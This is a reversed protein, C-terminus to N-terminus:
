DFRKTITLVNQGDKYTYKMQDMFKKSLYIGLGGPKRKGTPLKLNPDKKALPDFPMGRDSMQILAEEPNKTIKLRIAATKPMKELDAESYGEYAYRAVNVFLEEVSMKIQKVTKESCDFSRLAEEVFRTVEPTREEEADVTLQEDFVVEANGSEPSGNYHLCLMTLDDFPEADQVFERVRGSMDKLLEEPTREPNENLAELSRELRFMENEPNRIEPLGDTYLFLTSGPLLQLEYEKYLVNKKGGAVFSHRDKLLEFEGGPQKLIPYEHGANAARLLGSQLDLIGLWVTVFMESENSDCLRNNLSGLISAPSQTQAALDEIMLMSRMMFLSAPVGKGSVDAIVLALSHDDILFFDYFDGGVEKAPTMSAFLDFENRDSFASFGSPLMDLQIRAALNLEANLKEREATIQSNEEIYDWLNETMSGFSSALSEIENNTHIELIQADEGNKLKEVIGNAATELQVIPRIVKKRLFIFHLILAAALVVLFIGAIFLVLRFIAARLDSLVIDLEAYAIVHRSSDFVPIIATGMFTNDDNTLVLDEYVSGPLEDEAMGIRMDQLEEIEGERYPRKYLPPKSFGRHADEYWYCIVGDGAADPLVVQFVGMRTNFYIAEEMMTTVRNWDNYLKEEEAPLKVEEAAQNKQVCIESLREGNKLVTEALEGSIELSAIMAYSYALDTSDSLMKKYFQLSAIVSVGALLVVGLLILRGIVQKAITHKKM